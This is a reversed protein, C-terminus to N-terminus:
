KIQITFYYRNLEVGTSEATRGRLVLTYAGTHLSSGPVLVNLPAGPSDPAPAMVAFTGASSTLDCEYSTFATGPPVDLSLGLFPDSRSLSLLQGAGREAPRLFYASYARPASLRAVDGRLSPIIVAYQWASIACFFVAAAAPAWVSPRIWALWWAPASQNTERERAAARQEKLVARANAAFISGARVDQACEHCCFFHEEFEDRESASLEGLLYKEVSQAAIAAQHNM